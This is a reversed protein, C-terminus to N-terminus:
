GTAEELVMSSLWEQVLRVHEEEHQYAMGFAELTEEDQAAAAGLPCM